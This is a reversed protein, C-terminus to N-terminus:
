GQARARREAELASRAAQESFNHLTTIRQAVAEVEDPEAGVFSALSRAHLAMHGSLIGEMSLARLAALNSALGAAAALMALDRASEIEALRLSFRAAHHVRLTGGVIGVSIPMELTGHLGDAQTRWTALPRYHGTIAAFAHAGAEVARYDNGTALLVSDVGNMIGKNHTTARYPDREAFVSAAEIARAASAGVEADKHLAEFPIRARVKVLRDDSLNSLIRLGLEAQALRALMPGTAEAVMNALNAGMADCTDVAIHIVLHDPSLERIALRKPGGGRRVLGPVAERAVRLLEDTEATIAQRAAAVDKVNRLEVQAAILSEEMEARFGGGQRAMKAANSSAAVVSPEEVVMPVLRDKGNITFNMAVGFPLSYVGIVNEVVSLARKPDLGGADLLADLEGKEGEAVGLAERLIARREHLDLKHFGVIRSNKM